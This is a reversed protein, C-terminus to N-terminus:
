IGQLRRTRGRPSFQLPHLIRTFIEVPNLAHQGDESAGSALWALNAANFRDQFETFAGPENVLMGLRHRLHYLGLPNFKLDSFPPPNDSPSGGQAVPPPPYRIGPIGWNWLHSPLSMLSLVLFAGRKVNRVHTQYNICSGLVAFLGQFVM